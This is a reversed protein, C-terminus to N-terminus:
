IPRREKTGFTMTHLLDGFYTEATFGVWIADRLGKVQFDKVERIREDELLTEKIRRPLEGAVYYFDQGILDFTQLGYTDDYIDYIYKETMLRKRMAQEMAESGDIWGAIRGDAVRYTRSTMMNKPWGNEDLDSENLENPQQQEPVM